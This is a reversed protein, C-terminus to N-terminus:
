SNIITLLLLRINCLMHENLRTFPVWLFTFVNPILVLNFPIETIM